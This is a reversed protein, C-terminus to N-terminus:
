SSDRFALPSGHINKGYKIPQDGSKAGTTGFGARHETSSCAKEIVSCQDVAADSASLPCDHPLVRSWDGEASATGGEFYENKRIAVESKLRDMAEMAAAFAPKRHTAAVVVLVSTEGVPVRGLRHVMAFRSIQHRRALDAGLEAMSRIAMDKDEHCEYELCRVSKGQSNDRVACEFVVVAGDIHQRIRAVVSCVDIPDRTLAFFHGNHHTIERVLSGSGGSVPPLFAIEDGSEIAATRDCFRQNRAIVISRQLERLRPFRNAYVEFVGGVTAAAHLECAEERAGVIDRLSGFFLVKIM